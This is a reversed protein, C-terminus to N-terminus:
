MRNVWKWTSSMSQNHLVFSLTKIKWFALLSTIFSFVNTIRPQLVFLLHCCLCFNPSHKGPSFMKGRNNRGSSMTAFNYKRSGSSSSRLTVHPNEPTRSAVLSKRTLSPTPSLIDTTGASNLEKLKAELTHFGETSSEVGFLRCIDLFGNPDTNWLKLLYGRRNHVRKRFSSGARGFFIPDSRLKARFNSNGGFKLIDTILAVNLQDPLSRQDGVKVQKRIEQLSPVCSDSDEEEEEEESDLFENNSIKQWREQGKEEQLSLKNM